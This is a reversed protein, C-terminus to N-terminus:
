RFRGLETIQWWRNAPEFRVRYRRGTLDARFLAEDYADAWRNFMGQRPVDDRSM